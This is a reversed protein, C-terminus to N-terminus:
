EFPNKENLSAYLKERLRDDSEIWAKSRVSTFNLAAILARVESDTLELSIMRTDYFSM